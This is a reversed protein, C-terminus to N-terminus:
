KNLEACEAGPWAQEEIVHSLVRQMADFMATESTYQVADLVALELRYPLQQGALIRFRPPPAGPVWPPVESCLTPM